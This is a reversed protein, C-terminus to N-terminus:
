PRPGTEAVNSGAPGSLRGSGGPLSDAPAQQAQDPDIITINKLCRREGAPRGNAFILEETQEEGEVTVSQHQLYWLKDRDIHWERDETSLLLEMGPGSGVLRVVGTIRLIERKESDEKAGLAAAM